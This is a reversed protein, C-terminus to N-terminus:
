RAAKAWELVRAAIADPTFGFHQELRALPVSECYRDIGIALGREGMARALFRHRGGAPLVADCWGSDRALFLQPAMSVVRAAVGPWM